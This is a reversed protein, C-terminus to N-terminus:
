RLMADDYEGRTIIGDHDTDLEEFAFGGLTLRRAEARSLEGDRNADATLFSRAVDVATYPGPGIGSPQPAGAGMVNTAPTGSVNDGDGDGSGNGGTGGGGGPTAGGGTSTGPPNGLVDATLGAPFRSNLGAPSPLGPAPAGSPRAAPPAVPAVARVQGTNSQAQALGGAGLLLVFCLGAATRSVPFTHPFRAAAFKM